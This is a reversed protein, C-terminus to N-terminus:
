AEEFWCLLAACMSERERLEPERDLLSLRDHALARGFSEQKVKNRPSPLGLNDLILLRTDFHPLVILFPAPVGLRTPIGLTSLPIM